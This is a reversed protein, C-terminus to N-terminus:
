SYGLYILHLFFFFCPVFSYIWPHAFTPKYNLVVVIIFLYYLPLSHKVYKQEGQLICGNSKLFFSQPTCVCGYMHIHVCACYMDPPMGLFSSGSQWFPAALSLPHCLCKRVM